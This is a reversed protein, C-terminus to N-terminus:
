RRGAVRTAQRAPFVITALYSIPGDDTEALAALRQGPLGSLEAVLGDDRHHRAAHRKVDAADTSAKYLVVSSREAALHDGLDADDDLVVLAGGQRGLAVAAAAAAAQYSTVGAESSVPLAPREAAILVALDPFVTWQSPDGIVAVAVLEGADAAAVAVAALAVLSAHRAAEDGSIAFPARQVHATPAVARVVMEARGVSRVDTTIVLVRDAARLTAQARATILGPDGPGVGVGVVSPRPHAVVNPAPAADALGAVTVLREIAQRILEAESRGTSTALEGLSRKLDDPLYISSKHV